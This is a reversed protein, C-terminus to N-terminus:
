LTRPDRCYQNICDRLVAQRYLITDIDNHSASLVARRAVALLIEDDAAMARLLVDLDLDHILAADFRSLQQRPEVHGFRNLHPVEDATVFDSSRHMLHAKM